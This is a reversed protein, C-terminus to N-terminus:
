LVKQKIGLIKKFVEARDDKSLTKLYELNQLLTQEETIIKKSTKKM